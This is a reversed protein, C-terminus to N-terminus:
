KFDLEQLLLDFNTDTMPSVYKVMLSGTSYDPSIVGSQVPTDFETVAADYAALKKQEWQIGATNMARTEANEDKFTVGLLGSSLIQRNYLTARMLLDIRSHAEVTSSDYLENRQKIATRVVLEVAEKSDTLKLMGSLWVLSLLKLRVGSIVKNTERGKPQLIVYEPGGARAYLVVGNNTAIPFKEPNLNVERQYIQLYDTMTSLINTNVLRSSEAKNMKGLEDFIKRFRRSTMITKVTIQDLDKSFPSEIDIIQSDPMANMFLYDNVHYLNNVDEAPESSRLDAVQKNIKDAYQPNISKLQLSGATKEVKAAYAPIVTKLENRATEHATRKHIVIIAIWFVLTVFLICVFLVTSRKM